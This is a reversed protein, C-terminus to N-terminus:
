DDGGGRPNADELMACLVGLGASALQDLETVNVSYRPPFAKAVTACDMGIGVVEVGLDGALTCATTVTKAGYDCQGDTLVMCVHRTANVEALIHAATMIAPSLPTWGDDRMTALGMACATLTASWPKVIHLEAGTVKGERRLEQQGRPTYFVAICVKANAAEAAKAIHWAATQALAMRTLGGSVRNGMSSSGDILVLLATDIGPTNDKRSYVDLAGARMRVLARKDLRGSTEHHTRRHVEESVLLRAIQGHLVSNRPLRKDLAAGVHNPTNSLDRPPLVANVAVSLAHDRNTKTYDDLDDIDARKAITETTDTLDTDSPIPEGDETGPTGSGDHEGDGPTGQSDGPTGQGDQGDQADQADQADQSDGQGDQADQSDESTDQGDQADQSDGQGDQADQGDESTDQGDQADQADESTDQGDQTDQADQGEDQGDQGEDQGDQGEDQSEQSDQGDQGEDQGDQSDQPQEQQPQKPQPQKPPTPPTPQPQAAQTANREMRALEIALTVVQDTSRCRKVGRLAHDVLKAVAPSMAGRLGAASPVAYGNAVRGLICAVYNAHAVKSGITTKHEAANVLAKAHLHNAMVSLVTHLAPFVKAKIEAHEIRVDELANTWHRVLDGLKVARTWAKRSTHIVHCCEHAIFAVLRDAEARNLMADPPLTPMNLVVAPDIDSWNVSATRGGETTVHLIRRRGGERLALIKTATETTAQIVEIYRPM